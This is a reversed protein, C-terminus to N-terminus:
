IIKMFTEGLNTSLFAEFNEVNKLLVNDDITTYVNSIDANNSWGMYLRKYVNDWNGTNNILQNCTTRGIKTSLSINLGAYAGILKLHINITEGTIRPFVFSKLGKSPTFYKELIKQAPKPLIMITTKGTKKRMTDIKLRENFIPSISESDLLQFDIYSMGTFCLFLYVDRYFVLKNNNTIKECTIIQKVQNITLSATKNNSKLIMKIGYFPNKSLIEQKIAEEFITKIRRVNTSASVPSNNAGNPSCMYLNFKDANHYKFDTLLLHENKEKKLYAKFHKIAKRYNVKTGLTKTADNEVKQVSFTDIFEMISQMKSPAVRETILAILDNLSIKPVFNNQMMYKSWNSEIANLYDNLKNKSKTRVRRSIDDWQASETNTLDLEKPLRTEVKLNNYTIKLYIPIRGTKASKKARNPYISLNAKTQKKM